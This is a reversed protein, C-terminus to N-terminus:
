DERLWPSFTCAAGSGNNPNELALEPGGGTTDALHPLLDFYESETEFPYDGVPLWLLRLSPFSFVAVNKAKPYYLRAPGSNKM